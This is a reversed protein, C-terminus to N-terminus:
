VGGVVRIGEVNTGEIWIIRMESAMNSQGLCESGRRRRRRRGRMIMM